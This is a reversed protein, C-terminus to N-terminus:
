HPSYFRMPEPGGEARIRRAVRYQAVVVELSMPAMAGRPDVGLAQPQLDHKGVPSNDAGTRFSELVAKGALPPVRLPARERVQAPDEEVGAARHAYDRLHGGADIRQVVHLGHGDHPEVGVAVRDLEHLDDRAGVEDLVAHGPVPAEGRYHVDEGRASVHGVRTVVQLDEHGLRPFVRAVTRVRLM